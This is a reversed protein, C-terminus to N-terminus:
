LFFSFLTCPRRWLCIHPAKCLEWLLTQKCWWREIVELRMKLSTTLIFFQKCDKQRLVILLLAGDAFHLLDSTVNVRGLQSHLNLSHEWDEHLWCRRHKGEAWGGLYNNYHPTAAAYWTSLSVPSALHTSNTKTSRPCYATTLRCIQINKACSYNMSHLVRSAQRGRRLQLLNNQLKPEHCRLPRM